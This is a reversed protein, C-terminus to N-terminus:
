LSSTWIELKQSAKYLYQLKLETSGRQACVKCVAHVSGASHGPRLGPACFAIHTLMDFAKILGHRRSHFPHLYPLRAEVTARGPPLRIASWATLSAHPSM